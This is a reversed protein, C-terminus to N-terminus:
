RQRKNQKLLLMLPATFKDVAGKLGEVKKATTEAFDGVGKIAGDIVGLGQKAGGVGPLKDLVTLFFRLPGTVVKMIVTIMDGWARIMFAVYSIVAKAVVAVGNRFTESKKYAIVFGAVLAAIATVIIWNSKSCLQMLRWCLLPLDM